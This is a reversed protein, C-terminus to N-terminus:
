FWEGRKVTTPDTIIINGSKDLMWNEDHMDIRWDCLEECIARCASCVESPLAPHHAYQGNNFQRWLASTIVERVEYDSEFRYEPMATIYGGDRQTMGLIRPLHKAYEEGQEHKTRCFQAYTYGEDLGAGVKFVVGPQEPHKVVISFFGRGVVSYGAAKLAKVVRGRRSRGRRCAKGAGGASDLVALLSECHEQPKM